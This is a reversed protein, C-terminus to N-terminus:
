WYFRNFCGKQCHSQSIKQRKKKILHDFRKLRKDQIQQVEIKIM